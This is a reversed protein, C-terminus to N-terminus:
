HYSRNLNQTQHQEKQWSFCSIPGAGASGTNMGLGRGVTTGAVTGLPGFKVLSLLLMILLSSFSVGLMVKIETIDRLEQRSSM